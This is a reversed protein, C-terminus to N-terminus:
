GFGAQQGPLGKAVGDYLATAFAQGIYITDDTPCYFAASDGAPVGCATDVRGGPVVWVDHVSPAPRGEAADTQRWYTNVSALVSDLFPAIPTPAARAQPPVLLLVLVAFLSLVAVIRRAQSILM